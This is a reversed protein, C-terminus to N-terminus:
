GAPSKAASGGRLVGRATLALALLALVWAALSIWIAGKMLRTDYAMEVVHEGAPVVVGRFMVDTRYIPEPEGDVWAKWLHNVADVVVLLGARETEVHLSIREPSHGLWTVKANAAPSPNQILGRPFPHSPRALVVARHHLAGAEYMERFAQLCSSDDDRVTVVPVLFARPGPNLHHVDFLHEPSASKYAARNVDLFSLLEPTATSFRYLIYFLYGKEGPQFVESGPTNLVQTSRVDSAGSLLNLNPILYPAGSAESSQAWFRHPPGNGPPPAQDLLARWDPQPAPSFDPYRFQFAALPYLAAAFLLVVAGVQRASRGALFAICLLGLMVLWLGPIWTGDALPWLRYLSLVSLGGCLAISLWRLPAAPGEEGSAVLRWAGLAALAGLPFAALEAGHLPPMIGGLRLVRYPLSESVWPVYFGLSFLLMLWLGVVPAAPRRGITLLALAWLVPMLFFDQLPDSLFIMPSPIQNTGAAGYAKYTAADRLVQLVPAWQAASMAAALLVVLAMGGLFFRLSIERRMGTWCVTAFLATIEALYASSEMHGCLAMLAIAGAAILWGALRKKALAYLVGACAWPLTWAAWVSDMLLATHTFPNWTWLAAGAAALPPPLGLLRLFWYAGLLCLLSGLVFQLSYSFPGPAALFPLLLPSFPHMQGSGMGARGCGILPNWWPLTGGRVRTACYYECPYDLILGTADRSPLWRLPKPLDRKAEVGTFRPNFVHWPLAHWGAIMPLFYLLEVGIVLGAVLLTRRGHSPATV